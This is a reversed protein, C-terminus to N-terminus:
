ILRPVPCPKASSLGVGFITLDVRGTPIAYHVVVMLGSVLWANTLIIAFTVAEFLPRICAPHALHLAM